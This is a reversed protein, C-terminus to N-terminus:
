SNEMQSRPKNLGKKLPGIIKEVRTLVATRISEKFLIDGSLPVTATRIRSDYFHITCKDNAKTIKGVTLAFPILKEECLENLVLQVQAELTLDRTM